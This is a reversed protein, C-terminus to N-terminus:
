WNIDNMTNLFVAVCNRPDVVICDVSIHWDKDMSHHKNIHRLWATLHHNGEWMFFMKGVFQSLDSDKELMSDFEDSSEQWLSNWSARIDDSVLFVEDLNNYLSVYMARDGDYYGMVFENQLRAVDVESIPRVLPLCQLRCLPISFRSKSLPKICVRHIVGISDEKQSRRIELETEEANSEDLHRV